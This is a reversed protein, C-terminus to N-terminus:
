WKVAYVARSAPKLHGSAVLANGSMSTPSLPYGVCSVRFHCKGLILPVGIYVGGLVTTRTQPVGM